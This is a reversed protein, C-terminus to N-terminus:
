VVIRYVSVGFPAPDILEGTPDHAEISLYDTAKESVTITDAASSNIVVFYDADPEPTVFFIMYTGVGLYAAGVVNFMGDVVGFDGKVVEMNLVAAVLVPPVSAPDGSPRPPTVINDITDYM